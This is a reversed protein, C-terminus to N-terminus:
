FIGSPMESRTYAEEPLRTYAEKQRAHYTRPSGKKSHDADLSHTAPPGSPVM